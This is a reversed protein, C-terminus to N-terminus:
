NREKERERERERERETLVQLFTISFLIANVRIDLLRLNLSM